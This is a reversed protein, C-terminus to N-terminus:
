LRIGQAHETAESKCTKSVIGNGQLWLCRRVRAMAADAPLGRNGDIAYAALRADLEATQDFTLSEWIM